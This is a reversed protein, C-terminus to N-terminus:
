ISLLELPIKYVCDLFIEPSFGQLLLTDIKENGNGYKVILIFSYEIFIRYFFSIWPNVDFTHEIKKTIM